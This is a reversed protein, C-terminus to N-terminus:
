SVAFCLSSEADRPMSAAVLLMEQAAAVLSIVSPPKLPPQPPHGCAVYPLGGAALLSCSLQV